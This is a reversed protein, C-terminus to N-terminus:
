DGQEVREREQRTAPRASIIRLTVGREVHVVLLTRRNASLGVILYHPEGGRVDPDDHITALPDLFVTAAEPFSIGHKRKNAEAKAADWAFRLPGAIFRITAVHRESPLIREGVWTPM